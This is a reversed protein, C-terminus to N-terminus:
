GMWGTGRDGTSNRRILKIYREMDWLSGRPASHSVHKPNADAVYPEGYAAPPASTATGGQGAEIDDPKTERMPPPPAPAALREAIFTALVGGGLRAAAHLRASTSGDGGYRVRDVLANIAGARMEDTIPGTIQSRILEAQRAHIIDLLSTM